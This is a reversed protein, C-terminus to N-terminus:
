IGGRPKLNTLHIVLYLEYVSTNGAGGSESLADPIGHVLIRGGDEGGESKLSKHALVM